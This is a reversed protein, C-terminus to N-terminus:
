AQVAVPAPAEVQGASRICDRGAQKAVYLAGDARAVFAEFAERAVRSAVGLSASIRVDPHDPFRVARLATQVRAAIELAIATRQEPLLILFEEGGWRAVLDTARLQSRIAEGTARLVRDGFNHDHANNLQKFHDLDLMICSLEGSVQDQRELMLGQRQRFGHRTLCGTLVDREGLEVQRHLWAFRSAIAVVMSGVMVAFGLYSDVHFDVVHLTWALELISTVGFSTAGLLIAGAGLQGARLAQVTWVLALCLSAGLAVIALPVVVREFVPYLPHYATSSVLTLLGLAAVVAGVRSPLVAPRAFFLSFFRVVFWPLVLVPVFILYANVDPSRTVLYGFTNIGAIISALGLAVGAFALHHRERRGAYLVLHFFGAFFFLAFLMAMRLARREHEERVNAEPGLLVGPAMVGGNGYFTAVRLELTNTGDLRLADFPLRFVGARFDKETATGDAALVGRGDLGKGNLFLEYANATMPMRLAADGTWGAPLTFQRRFWVVGPAHIGQFNLNGPVRADSWTDGSDGERLEWTGDASTVDTTSLVLPAPAAALTAAFLATLV